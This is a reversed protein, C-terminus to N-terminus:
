TAGTSSRCPGDGRARPIRRPLHRAYALRPDMGALAPFGFVGRHFVGVQRTWGRSRPSDGFLGARKRLAAPGDGRARPIWASRTHYIGHIPDMGALAPFGLSSHGLPGDEHTWGRSRPSDAAQEEDGARDRPGDGRARPIGPAETRHIRESPDMGALAPFGRVARGAEAARRTWGRSRPSDLGVDRWHGATLPGDGRARPIWTARRPRCASRPDMGALAPFGTRADAPRGPGPTWGRSRPSDRFIRVAECLRWPGDGRARPIRPAAARAPSTGPDMGALAPFGAAHRPGARRPPTWGRSRPSDTEM